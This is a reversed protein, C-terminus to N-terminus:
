KNIELDKRRTTILFIGQVLVLAAYQRQFKRIRPFEENGGAFYALEVRKTHFHYSKIRLVVSYVRPSGGVSCLQERGLFSRRHEGAVDGLVVLKKYGSRPVLFGGEILYEVSGWELSCPLKYNWKLSTVCCKTPFYKVLRIDMIKSIMFKVRLKWQDRTEIINM